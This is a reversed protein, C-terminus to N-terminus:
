ETSFFTNKNIIIYQKLYQVVHRWSEYAYLGANMGIVMDPQGGDIDFAPNLSDGYTGGIISLKLNLYLNM